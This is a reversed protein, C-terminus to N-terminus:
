RRRLYRRGPRGEDHGRRRSRRAHRQGGGGTLTNVGANGTIANNLENGTLNIASMGGAATTMLQEVEVGPALTYSVSTLIRDIGEGANEVVLDGANNVMYTDDGARGILVDAGAAGDLIDNASSGRLTDRDLGGIIRNSTAVALPASDAPTQTTKLM